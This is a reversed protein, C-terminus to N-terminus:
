SSAEKSKAKTKGKSKGKAETGESKEKSAAAKKRPARPEFEFGYKGNAKVYLKANFNRGKKSVFDKLLDTKGETFFCQAEEESIGRKCVEVPLRGIFPGKAMAKPAKGLVKPFESIEFYYADQTRRFTGSQGLYGSELKKEDLVKEESALEAVSKSRTSKYEEGEKVLAEVEGKEDMVLKGKFPKGDWYVLDLDRTEGNDLLEQLLNRDVYRGNYEKRVTVTEEESKKAVYGYMYESFELGLRECKVVPEDKYLDEYQFDRIQDVVEQIYSVIEEMFDERSILRREVEKLRAEIQATLEVSNLRRVDVRKLVDLLRIAKATARLSAGVRRVYDKRILNEIIDARTAPTGIGKGELAEFLEEDSLEKGAFEMLTLLKAEGYRSPPKTEHESVEIDSVDVEPGILPALADSSDEEKGFVAMWGPEKLFRGKSQFNYGNVETKRDVVEFVAPPHFIALVRKVVLDFVRADDGELTRKPQVGTPIIAFHDSVKKDDFIRKDSGSLKELAPKVFPTYQSLNGVGQISSRLTEVYDSPLHKSDTRPYTILKEQEYLRQAAQLTRQASIGFRQNAERQLSTLDFLPAPKRLSRKRSETAFGKAGVGGLAKLIEEVKEKEFIKESDEGKSLHLTGRYGHDSAQFQAEIKSYPRPVHSIVELERDVLMSLTPTQVRGVSFVQRVARSQLRKTIARTGNIGILWDSESRSKASAALGELEEGPLLNQFGERIADPIMSSLWLRYIPLKVKEHEMIERFILEGERGADCANVVADIDDRKLLKKIVKYQEKTRSTVKSKFKKPIIPLEKLMWAKYKKDIDEPDQLELMHGIAWTVVYEDSENFGQDKKKVGLARSLDEGVSPKEAIVLRKGM